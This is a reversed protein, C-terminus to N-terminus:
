FFESLEYWVDLKKKIPTPGYFNIIVLKLKRNFNRVVGGKWNENNGLKHFSIRNLNWIIGTGDPNMTEEIAEGWM